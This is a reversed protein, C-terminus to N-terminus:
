AASPLRGRLRRSFEELARVGSQEAERCWEQLAVLAAEPQHAAVKWVRQLREMYQYAVQLAPSSELAVRLQVQGEADLLSEDRLLLGRSQRLLGRLARDGTQRHLERCTRALVEQRYRALLLLRNKVLVRVSEARGSRRLRLPPPAVRRVRALGFLSLLRIYIWGIDLEWARTALRASSPFAHHNNHLEEGGILIGWPVINTSADPTAYSRYGLYHGVGNIVGAAWIPIWLMQIAWVTLGAPGLLLLDIVLMLVIGLRHRATYLHRELWDDPAGKGYREVTERDDAARRYVEAGELLLRRLGMVQPSHPDEPTECKAHHKRHVAIWERTVMGTTLWLWFRFFHAVAPHLELARHAQHRHLYVTVAVITIHTVALTYVVFGGFSPELLGQLM